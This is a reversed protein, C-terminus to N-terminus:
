FRGRDAPLHKRIAQRRGRARLGLLVVKGAREHFADGVGCKSDRALALDQSM